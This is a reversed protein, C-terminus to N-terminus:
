FNNFDLASIRIGRPAAPKGVTNGADHIPTDHQGCRFLLIVPRQHPNVLIKRCDPSPKRFCLALKLLVLGDESITPRSCANL